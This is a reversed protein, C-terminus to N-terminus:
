AESAKEAPSGVGARGAPAVPDGTALEGPAAVECVVGFCGDFGANVRELVAPDVDLDDPDITTVVCRECRRRVLLTAGGVRVERGVWSEEERPAIGSVLVNPRFRRSDAGLEAATAAGLLLVPLEDFRPGATTPVLSAGPAAAELTAAAAATDWREGDLLPEGDPGLSSGVGLLGRRTRPTVLRGEAEVRLLRDGAFGDPGIRARALREGRTSKVPYRWLEAVRGGGGDARAM